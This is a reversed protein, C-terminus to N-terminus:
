QGELRMLLWAEESRQKHWKNHKGGIDPNSAFKEPDSDKEEAQRYVSMWM